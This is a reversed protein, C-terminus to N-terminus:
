RVEHIRGSDVEYILGHVALSKLWPHARIKEVQQQVNVTLDSFAGFELDTEIGTERALTSRMTEDTFTMMGCGTHNIVIVEQTGLMWQSIVLSRIADETALGGANRIVHVDGPRFGFIETLDIRADMCTLIALARLPAPHLRSRDYQESYRKAERLLRQFEHSRKPPVIAKRVM